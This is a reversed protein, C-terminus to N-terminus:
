IIYLIVFLERVLLCRVLLVSWSSGIAVLLGEVLMRRVLLGGRVLRRVLLGKVVMGYNSVVRCSGM